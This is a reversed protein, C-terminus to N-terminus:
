AGALPNIPGALPYEDPNMEFKVGILAPDNPVVLNLTAGPAIWFPPGIPPGCRVKGAMWGPRFRQTVRSYPAGPSRTRRGSNLLDTVEIPKEVAQELLPKRLVVVQTQHRPARPLQSRFAM